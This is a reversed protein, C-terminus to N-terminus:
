IKPSLQAIHKVNQMALSGSVMSLCITRNFSQMLAELIRETGLAAVAVEASSIGQTTRPNWEWGLSSVPSEGAQSLCNKAGVKNEGILKELCLIKRNILNRFFVWFGLHKNKRQWAFV